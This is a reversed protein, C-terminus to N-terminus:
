QNLVCHAVAVAPDLGVNRQNHQREESAFFLIHDFAGPQAQTIRGCAHVIYERCLPSRVSVVIFNGLDFRPDVTSRLM